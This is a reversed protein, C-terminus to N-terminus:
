WGHQKLLKNLGDGGSTDTKRETLRFPSCQDSVGCRLTKSEFRQAHPETDRFIRRTWEEAQVRASSTRHEVGVWFSGCSWLVSLVGSQSVDKRSSSAECVWSEIM